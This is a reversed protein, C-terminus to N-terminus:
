LVEKTLIGNLLLAATSAALQERSTQTVGALRRDLVGRLVDLVFTIVAASGIHLRESIRAEFRLRTHLSFQLAALIADNRDDVLELARVILRRVIQESTGGAQRVRDVEDLLTEEARLQAARRMEGRDRFYLYLTAKSVGAEEAVDLMTIDDFGERAIVRLVAATIADRRFEAVVEAKTPRHKPESSM